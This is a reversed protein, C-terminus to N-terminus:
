VYPKGGQRRPRSKEHAPSPSSEILFTWSSASAAMVDVGDGSVQIASLLKFAQDIEKQLETM